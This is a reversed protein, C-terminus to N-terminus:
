LTWNLGCGATGELMPGLEPDYRVAVDVGGKVRAVLGDSRKFEFTVPLRGRRKALTPVVTDPFAGVPLRVLAGTHSPGKYPELEEMSVTFLKVTTRDEEGAEEEEPGAGVATAAGASGSETEVKLEGTIMLIADAQALPSYLEHTRTRRKTIQDYHSAMVLVEMRDTVDEIQLLTWAEGKQNMKQTASTVMAAVRVEDRDKLKGSEAAARLDAISGIAHLRVVDQFEEMPHGSVYLGLAEREMRLRERRTPPPVDTPPTWREVLVNLDDDDFLSPSDTGIGDSSARDIAEPLGKLLTARNPEVSDFAGAKILAEWVKKNAKQSNTAKLADFFEPFGGNQTRAEIIADLAAGGLGKIAALGFRIQNPGTITFDLQSENIDPGLVEIGMEKCNQIYKVVDDTKQSKTSLLGAMFETRHNAKLYATEFAVMAYAASHSRNFGYGAFYEIQEFLAETIKRDHGRAVAQDIFGSREKAMKEKDKKGMARRLLDAEALSYGAVASAIRMVQEQYLIVGYTSELLPELIPLMYTVKERGHRRNVFTDGMGAGLPGPRFLANLAILDDFRDPRLDRLLKKMGSSEFQFVGDTDGASFLDFTRKDEFTHVKAMDAPQGTTKTIYDQIKAIQTLTELGLFDMKLLGARESDAMAYQVMVKGDKDRMLPAFQTLDDPAIIVGAAHVGTNRAIGELRAAVDLIRKVDPEQDYREKLREVWELCNAITIKKEPDPSVTPILKNLENAWGFDREYVRAVDKIVAKTKLQNITVINSVREKGYRETVYDIVRQRGDRCFDIDVDPMTVREPNLFREFLLEHQMPDIDTIMLSWAVISGAASGRGPGVPVGMDRAKLIFDWVLLFYGPFGMKLIMDIEFDLRERYEQETHRLRGEQWLPACAAIRREFWERSTKVFYDQVSSGDPTPFNPAIPKREIPFADIKSAIELTREVLEPHDAFLSSMEQPTKVYFQDTSFRMRKADSKLRKTGICLLTDHLDSDEANLYHADNTGVLQIGTRASLEFQKPIILREAEFGQDQMELYFDEGFIDRYERAVREASDVSGNLLRAQVEGGLCASLGILGESHQALLEKDIRPKYYFGETFGASVLKSLNAFGKHNKALLVLHYGADRQGSPDVCDELGDADPTKADLKRDFRSRPAVYVECGLIPKVEGNGIKPNACCDVLKMMGLMNGHDTVAVAPMGSARCKKVLDPIRTLGDLLSYETHLHLHVFSM